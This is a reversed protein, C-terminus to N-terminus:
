KMSVKKRNNGSISCSIIGNPLYLVVIIVLAGYIVQDIGTGTGGALVRTYQSILTLVVAGIIPGLVTGIGGMVTVLCIMLSIQLTM